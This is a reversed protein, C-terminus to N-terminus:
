GNGLGNTRMPCRLKHKRSPLIIWVKVGLPSNAISDLNSKGYVEIGPCLLVLFCELPGGTNWAYGVKDRNYAVLLTERDGGVGM